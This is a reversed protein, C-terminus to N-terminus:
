AGSEGASPGKDRKGRAISFVFWGASAALFAKKYTADSVRGLFILVGMILCVALSLLALGGMLSRFVRNKM